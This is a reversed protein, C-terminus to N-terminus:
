SQMLFRWKGACHQCGSLLSLQIWMMLWLLWSPKTRCADLVNKSFYLIVKSLLADFRDNMNDVDFDSSLIFDLFFHFTSLISNLFIFYCYLPLFVIHLLWGLFLFVVFVLPLLFHSCNFAM